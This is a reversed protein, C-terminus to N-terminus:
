NKEISVFPGCPWIELVCCQTVPFTYPEVKFRCGYGYVFPPLTSSKFCFRVTESDCWGGSDNMRKLRRAAAIEVECKFSKILEEEDIELEISKVVGYGLSVENTLRCRFGLEAVKKNYVLQIADSRSGFKMYVKYPTKYKIECIDPINEAKLLRAMGIQKPLAKDSSVCVEIMNSNMERRNSLNAGSGANSKEQNSSEKLKKSQRKVLTFGEDDDIVEEDHEDNTMRCRKEPRGYDITSRQVSIEHAEFQQLDCELSNVIVEGNMDSMTVGISRSGPVEDM